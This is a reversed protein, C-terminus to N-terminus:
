KASGPLWLAIQPFMIVLALTLIMTLFFPMVGIFV